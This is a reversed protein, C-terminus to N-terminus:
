SPTLAVSARTGAAAHPSIRAASSTIDRPRELADDGAGLDPIEAVDEAVGHEVLMAPQPHIGAHNQQPWGM